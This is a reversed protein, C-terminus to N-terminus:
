KPPPTAEKPPMDKGMDKSPPPSGGPDKPPTTSPTAAPTAPTTEGECGVLFAPASLVALGLVLRSLYSRTM